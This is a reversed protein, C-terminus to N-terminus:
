GEVTDVAFTGTELRKGTASYTGYNPTDSEPAHSIFRDEISKDIAEVSLMQLRGGVAEFGYVAARPVYVGENPGVEAMLRNGEGYFRARGSLVFYLGDLAAHAHLGQRGGEELTQIVVYM